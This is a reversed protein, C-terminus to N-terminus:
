KAKDLAIAEALQSVKLNKAVIKRDPGILYLEPTNDVYFTKYISRNTPDFVNTFDQLRYAKVFNRWKDDETDLAIAYIDLENRLQPYLSTLKPTQEICHDCEPNFMFVAIYPKKLDYLRKGQGDLGPVTIDPAKQGILSYAMTEARQQLGYINMSDSWVAREPTFYNKIMYVHVAEADMVTSEGPQYQLTIWNAFYEFDKGDYGTRAMLRDIGAILSDANQPTLEKIYRKLKNKIVPTRLLRPDDLNVDDWFHYRFDAVQSQEDPSGDPLKLDKLEPNQGARKFATFLSRPAKAFLGELYTQRENVLARREDALAEYAPTGPTAANRRNNLDQFRPQLNGEFALADYLLENDVSGEVKMTGVVDRFDVDMTFTQDESILFQIGSGNPLYAYYHGQPYPEDRQFTITQGDVQASDARYQQDMFQGVLLAGDVDANKITIRIDPSEANALNGDVDNVASNTSATASDGCSFLCFFAAALTLLRM